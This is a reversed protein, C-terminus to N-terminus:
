EPTPALGPGTVRREGGTHLRVFVQWSYLAYFWRRERSILRAYRLVADVYLPSPNYRYLARAYDGPAGNAHLYNAAGLIADHPDRIDGGLGYAAWTSPIFQMPGQAGATSNNRLKNFATEVFNVAALVHVGVRFRRQATRYWRLLDSPPAARGPRIAPRKRPPVGNLTRLDRMAKLISAFGPRRPSPVRALVKEGLSRHRSLHRLIRQQRLGYLAVDEPLEASAPAGKATWTSIGKRLGDDAAVLGAALDRASSPLPANPAPLAAAPEQSPRAPPSPDDAGDGCGSLALAAAAVLAARRM